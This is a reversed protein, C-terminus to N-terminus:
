QLHVDQTYKVYQKKIYKNTYSFRCQIEQEKLDQIDDNTKQIQIFGFQSDEDYEWVWQGQLRVQNWGWKTVAALTLKGEERHKHSM